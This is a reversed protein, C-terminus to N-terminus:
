DRLSDALFRTLLACIDLQAHALGTVTGVFRVSDATPRLPISAVHHGADDYQRSQLAVSTKRHRCCEALRDAMEASPWLEDKRGAILLVPCAIREVAIEADPPADNLSPVYLDVLKRSKRFEDNLIHVEVKPSAIAQRVM